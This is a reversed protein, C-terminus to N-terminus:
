EEKKIPLIRYCEDRKKNPCSANFESMMISAISVDNIEKQWVKISKEYDKRNNISTLFPQNGNLKFIKYQLSDTNLEHDNGATKPYFSWFNLTGLLQNNEKVLM